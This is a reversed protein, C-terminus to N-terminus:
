WVYIIEDRTTRLTKRRVVNTMCENTRV